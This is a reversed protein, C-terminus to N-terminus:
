STAQPKQLSLAPQVSSPLASSQWEVNGHCCNHPYGALPFWHSVSRAKRPSLLGRPALNTGLLWLRPPLPLCLHCCSSAPPGLVGLHSCRVSLRISFPINCAHFYSLLNHPCSFGTTWPCSSCLSFHPTGSTSQVSCLILVTM